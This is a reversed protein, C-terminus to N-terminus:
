VFYDIWLNLEPMDRASVPLDENFSWKFNLCYLGSFLKQSVTEFLQTRGFDDLFLMFCESAKRNLAFCQYKNRMFIEM